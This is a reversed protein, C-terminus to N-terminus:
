YEGIYHCHCHDRVECCKKDKGYNNEFKDICIYCLKTNESPEQQQKTLLKMKKFFKILEM